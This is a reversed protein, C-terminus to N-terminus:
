ISLLTREITVVKNIRNNIGGSNSWHIITGRWSLSACRCFRAPFICSTFVEWLKLCHKFAGRHPNLDYSWQLDEGFNWLVFDLIALIGFVIRLPPLSCCFGIVIRVVFGSCLIIGQSLGTYIRRSTGFPSIWSQLFLQLCSAFRHSYAIWVCIQIRCYLYVNDQRTLDQAHYIGSAGVTRAPDGFFTQSSVVFGPSFEVKSKNSQSICGHRVFNVLSEKVNSLMDSM